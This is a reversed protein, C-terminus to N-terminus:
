VSNIVKVGLGIKKERNCRCSKISEWVKGKCVFIIFIFVGRLLNLTDVIKFFYFSFAGEERHTAFYTVLARIGELIWLLGLVVLLKM